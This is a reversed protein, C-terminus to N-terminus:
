ITTMKVYAWSGNRRHLSVTVSSRVGTAITGNTPTATFLADIQASSLGTIDGLDRSTVGDAGYLRGTVTCKALVTSLNSALAQWLPQTQSAVANFSATPRTTGANSAVNLQGGSSTANSGVWFRSTSRWDSGTTGAQGSTAVRVDDTYVRSVQFGASAQSTTDLILDTSTAGAYAAATHGTITNLAILNRGFSTILKVGHTTTKVGQDDEITNGVVACGAGGTIAIGAYAADAQQGVNRITNGTVSTQGGVIAIGHNLAGDIVNGTVTGNAASYSIGNDQSGEINNDAIV